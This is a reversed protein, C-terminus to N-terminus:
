QARGTAPADVGRWPHQGAPQLGDALPQRLRMNQMGGAETQAALDLEAVRQDRTINRVEDLERNHGQGDADQQEGGPDPGRLFFPAQSAPGSPSDSEAM